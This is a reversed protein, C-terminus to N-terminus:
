TSCLNGGSLPGAERGHWLARTAYCASDSINGQCILCMLCMLNGQWLAWPGVPCVKLKVHLPQGLESHLAWVLLCFFGTWSWWSRSYLTMESAALIFLQILLAPIFSRYINIDGAFGPVVEKFPSNLYQFVGFAAFLGYKLMSAQVHFNQLVCSNQCSSMSSNLTLPKEKM